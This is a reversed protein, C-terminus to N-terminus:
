IRRDRFYMWNHPQALLDLYDLITIIVNNAYLVYLEILIDDNSDDSCTQM